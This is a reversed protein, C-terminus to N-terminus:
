ISDFFVGIKTLFKHFTPEATLESSRRTSLLISAFTVAFEPPLAEALKIMVPAKLHKEKKIWSNGISYVVAYLMSAKEPLKKIDSIEKEPDKLIKDIDLKGMMRVFSQFKAAVPTGVCSAALKYILDIDTMKDMMIGLSQWTSPFPNAKNDVLKEDFKQPFLDESFSSLYAPIRFDIGQKIFYDIVEKHEPMVSLHSFRRLLALSSVNVSCFDNETNSAAVRWFTQNGNADVVAPLSGYRGELIIQYCAARTTDDALNMEDFFLIGQGIRPLEATPVFETYSKAKDKEDIVVQPMGRLDPSDFQSLTIVKLTFIDKGYEDESYRLGLKGAQEQAFQRIISTKGTSPRGWLYLPTKSKMFAPLLSKLQTLNVQELTNNKETM